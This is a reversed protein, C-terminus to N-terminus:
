WWCWRECASCCAKDPREGASTTSTSAWKTRQVFPLTQHLATVVIVDLISVHVVFSGFCKEKTWDEVCNYAEGDYRVDIRRNREPRSQLQREPSEACHSSRLQLAEGVRVGHGDLAQRSLITRTRQEVLHHRHPRPLDRSSGSGRGRSIWIDCKWSYPREHAAAKNWHQMASQISAM